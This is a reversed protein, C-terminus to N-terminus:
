EMSAGVGFINNDEEIFNSSRVISGIVKIACTPYYPKIGWVYDDFFPNNCQCWVWCWFLYLGWTGCLKGCGEFIQILSWVNPSVYQANSTFWLTTSM